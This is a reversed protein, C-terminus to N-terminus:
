HKNLDTYETCFLFIKYNENTCCQYSIVSSSIFVCNQLLLHVPAQQELKIEPSTKM